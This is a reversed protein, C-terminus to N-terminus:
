SLWEIRASAAMFIAHYEELHLRQDKPTSAQYMEVINYTAREVTDEGLKLKEPSGDYQSWLNDDALFFFVREYDRTFSTDLANNLRRSVVYYKRKGIQVMEGLPMFDSTHIIEEKKRDGSVLHYSYMDGLMVSEKTVATLLWVLFAKVVEALKEM